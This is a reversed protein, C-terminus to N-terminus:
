PRADDASLEAALMYEPLAPTPAASGLRSQILQQRVARSDAVTCRAQERILDTREVTSALRILTDTMRDMTGSADLRSERARLRARRVQDALATTTTERAPSDEASPCDLSVRFVTLLRRIRMPCHRVAAARGDLPTRTLAALARAGHADIFTLGSLDILVPGPVARVSAAARDLLADTTTAVDLEGAVRLVCAGNRPAAWVQVGDTAV